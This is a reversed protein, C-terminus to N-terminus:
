AQRRRRWCGCATGDDACVPATAPALRLALGAALFLFVPAAWESGAPPGDLAVYSVLGGAWFLAYAGILAFSLVPGSARM